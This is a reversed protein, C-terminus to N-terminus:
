VTSSKKDEIEQCHRKATRLDVGYDLTMRVWGPAESVYGSWEDSRHKICTYTREEGVHAKHHTPLVEHWILKL